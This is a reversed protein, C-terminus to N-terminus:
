GDFRPAVTLEAMTRSARRDTARAGVPPRDTSSELRNNCHIWCDVRDRQGCPAAVVDVTACDDDIPLIEDRQTAADNPARHPTGRADSLHETRRPATASRQATRQPAPPSKIIPGNLM